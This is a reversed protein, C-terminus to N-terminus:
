QRKKKRIYVLMIISIVIFLLGIIYAPWFLYVAFAITVKFAEMGYILDMTSMDCMICIGEYTGEIASYIGGYLTILFPLVGIVLLVYSLIKRFKEKKTM